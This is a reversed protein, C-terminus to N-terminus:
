QKEWAKVYEAIAKVQDPQLSKGVKPMKGKGDQIIKEIDAATTKKQWAQDNFNASGKAPAKAVGDKGHCMSCKQDYLARGDPAEALAPLLAFVLAGLLTVLVICRRM